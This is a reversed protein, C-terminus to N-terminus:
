ISLLVVGKSCRLLFFYHICVHADVDPRGRSKAQNLTRIKRRSNLKGMWVMWKLEWQFRLAWSAASKERIPKRFWGFHPTESCILKNNRKVFKIQESHLKAQSYLAFINRRVDYINYSHLHTYSLNMTSQMVILILRVM